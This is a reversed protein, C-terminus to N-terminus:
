THYFELPIGTCQVTLSTPARFRRPLSHLIRHCNRSQARLILFMLVASPLFSLSESPDEQRPSSRCDWREELQNIQIVALPYLPPSPSAASHTSSSTDDCEQGDLCCLCPKNQFCTTLLLPHACLSFSHSRSLLRSRM